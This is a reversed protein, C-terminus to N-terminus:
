QRNRGTKKPSRQPGLLSASASRVLDSELRQDFVKKARRKSSELKSISRSFEARSLFRARLEAALELRELEHDRLVRLAHLTDESLLLNSARAM